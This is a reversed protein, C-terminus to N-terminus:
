RWVFVWRERFSRAGLRMKDRCRARCKESFSRGPGSEVASATARSQLPNDVVALGKIMDSVRPALGSSLATPQHGAARLGELLAVDGFGKPCRLFGAELNLARFHSLITRNDILSLLTPDPRRPKKSLRSGEVRLSNQDGRDIPM